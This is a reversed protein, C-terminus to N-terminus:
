LQFYFSYTAQGDDSEGTAATNVRLRM